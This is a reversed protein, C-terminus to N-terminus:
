VCPKKRVNVCLPPTLKGGLHIEPELCALLLIEVAVEM